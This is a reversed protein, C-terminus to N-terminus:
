FLSRQTLSFCNCMKAPTSPLVSSSERSLEIHNRCVSFVGYVGTKEVWSKSYAVKCLVKLKFVNSSELPPLQGAEDM